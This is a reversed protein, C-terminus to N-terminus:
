RGVQIFDLQPHSRTFGCDNAVQRVIPGAGEWLQPHSGASV